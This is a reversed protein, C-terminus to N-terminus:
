AKLDLAMGRATEQCPYITTIGKRCYRGHVQQGYMYAMDVVHGLEEDENWLFRTQMILMFYIAYHIGQKMNRVLCRSHLPLALM